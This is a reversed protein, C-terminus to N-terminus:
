TKDPKIHALEDEKGHDDSREQELQLFSKHRCMFSMANGDIDAEFGEEDGLFSSWLEGKKELVDLGDDVFQDQFASMSRLYQMEREQAAEIASSINVDTEIGHKFRIQSASLEDERVAQGDPDVIGQLKKDVKRLLLTDRITPGVDSRCNPCHLLVSFM